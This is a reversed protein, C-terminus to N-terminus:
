ASDIQFQQRKVPVDSPEDVLPLLAFSPPSGHYLIEGLIEAGLKGANAAEGSSVEPSDFLEV